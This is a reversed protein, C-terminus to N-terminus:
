QGEATSKLNALGQEFQEGMMKECNMVLGMVKGMFSNEGHMTWTVNTGDNAPILTFEATSVGKMPKYFELRSTVRENPVVQTITVKGAGTKHGEWSTEAGVGSDPGAYSYKADPDMKVWPSWEAVKKHNNIWPFIQEAPANIKATRTVSFEDPQRSAIFLFIGIAAVIALIIFTMQKKRQM